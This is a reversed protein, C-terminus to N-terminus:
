RYLSVCLLVQREPLVLPPATQHPRLLGPTVDPPFVRTTYLFSPSLRPDQEARGTLHRPYREKGRVAQYEEESSDSVSTHGKAFDRVM